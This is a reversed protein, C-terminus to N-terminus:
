ASEGTDLFVETGKKGSGVNAIGTALGTMDPPLADQPRDGREMQEHQLQQVAVGGDTRQPVQGVRHGVGGGVASRPHPQRQFRQPRQKAFGSIRDVFCVAARAVRRSEPM